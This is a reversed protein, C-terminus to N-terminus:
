HAWHVRQVRRRQDVLTKLQDIFQNTYVKTLDYCMAFKMPDAASAPMVNFLTLVLGSLISPLKM